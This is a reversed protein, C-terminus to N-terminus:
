RGGRSGPDPWPRSGVAPRVAMPMVTQGSVFTSTGDANDIKKWKPMTKTDANTWVHDSLQHVLLGQKQWREMKDKWAVRAYKRAKSAKAKPNEIMYRAQRYAIYHQKMQELEM